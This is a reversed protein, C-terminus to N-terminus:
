THLDRLDRFVKSVRERGPVVHDSLFREAIEIM